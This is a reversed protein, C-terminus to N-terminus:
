YFVSFMTLLCMEDQTGDGWYTTGTADTSDYGCELTVKTDGGMEIPNTLEYAFQWNFDWRPVDILCVESGDGLEATAKLTTGMQHMHPGVATLTFEYNGIYNGLRTTQTEVHDAKGEPIAIDSNVLFWPYLLGDVEDVLKYRVETQDGLESGTDNYHIQMIHPMGAELPVGTGEPYEWVNRGPAWAAAMYSGVNPGGFCTYGDGAEADDLAYADALASPSDPVYVIVHHVVEPNGPVVEYAALYSESTIGPDIIFCRYDDLGSSFAPSYVDTLPLTHTYDDLTAQPAPLSPANAPDGELQDGGAWDVITQIDADDLWVSHEYENCTGDDKALWPPMRRSVVSDAVAGAVLRTDEYSTLVFPAIEGSQHCSWCNDALIPAVDEYFTPQDLNATDDSAGICALLTLLM